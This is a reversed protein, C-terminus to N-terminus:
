LKMDPDTFGDDGHVPWTSAAKGRAHCCQLSGVACTFSASFIGDGMHVVGHWESSFCEKCSHHRIAGLAVGGLGEAGFTVQLDV